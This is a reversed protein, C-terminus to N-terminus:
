EELMLKFVSDGRRVRQDVKIAVEQGAKVESVPEHEIQMSTIKQRFDTHPGLFHVMDGIQLDSKLDAVAVSIRDFFHNVRGVREGETM